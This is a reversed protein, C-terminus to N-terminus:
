ESKAKEARYDCVANQGAVTIEVYQTGILIWGNKHCHMVISRPTKIHGPLLSVYNLKGREGSRVLGKAPPTFLDGVLASLFEYTKTQM